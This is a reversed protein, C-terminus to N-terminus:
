SKPKLASYINYKIHKGYRHFEVASMTNIYRAQRGMLSIIKYPLFAILNFVRMMPAVHDTIDEVTIDSFGAKRMFQEQTGHTFQQFAPMAAYKNIFQFVKVARPPLQSDPDRAYEFMVLKGGPKLAKYFNKLVKHPNAAHVFTEMTYIADFSNEPFSLSEYSMVQLHVLKELKREKIRRRAEAINFDLIDIGEICLGHHAALYSAVDGVGCGADLVKSGPPLTLKSALQEEMQRLTKNFQWWLDGKNYYGFHKTGKLFLNYGKKSESTNYYRIVDDQHSSM